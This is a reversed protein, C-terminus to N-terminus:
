LCAERRQSEEHHSVFFSSSRRLRENTPRQLICFSSVLLICWHGSDFGAPLHERFNPRSLCGRNKWVLRPQKTRERERDKPSSLAEAPYKKDQCLIGPVSCYQWFFRVGQSGGGFSLPVGCAESFLYQVQKKAAPPTCVHHHHDSMEVGSLM